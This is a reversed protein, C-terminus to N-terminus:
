TWQKRRLLMSTTTNTIKTVINQVINEIINILCSPKDAHRFTHSTVIRIYQSLLFAFSISGAFRNWKVGAACCVLKLAATNYSRVRVKVFKNTVPQRYFFTVWGQRKNVKWVVSPTEKSRM